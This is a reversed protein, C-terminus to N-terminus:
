KSNLYNKIEPLKTIKLIFYPYHRLLQLGLYEMIKDDILDMKSNRHPNNVLLLELDRFIFNFMRIIYTSKKVLEPISIQLVTM